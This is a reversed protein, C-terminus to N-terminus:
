HVNKQNAFLSISRLNIKAIVVHEFDQQNDEIYKTYRSLSDIIGTEAIMKLAEPEPSLLATFLNLDIKKKALDYPLQYQIFLYEQDVFTDYDKLM